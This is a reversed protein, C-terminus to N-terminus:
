KMARLFGDFARTWELLRKESVAGLRLESVGRLLITLEDGSPGPHRQRWAALVEAPLATRRTHLHRTLTAMFDRAVGKALLGSAGARQYIRALASAYDVADARVEGPRPVAPGLRVAVAWFGVAVALLIPLLVGLQGHYRLYAWFGGGSRIGHHYEDFYVRGDRAHLAIINHLLWVNDNRKLGRLTLLSPDPVVIVRGQGRGLVVAGPQNGIRWLPLGERAWVRYGGEVGVRDVDDTYGGAEEVAVERTDESTGDRSISLGLERHLGSESRGCLLLTNGQEVWRILARVDAPGLSDEKESTSQPEVLVLLRPAEAKARLSQIPRTLAVPVYGLRRILRAAEALGDRDRSYVSYSPMEKGADVRAALASYVVFGFLGLLLLLVVWSTLRTM